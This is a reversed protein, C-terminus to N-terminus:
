EAELDNQRIANAFDELLLVFRPGPISAYGNTMLVARYPNWVNSVKNAQRSGRRPPIIDIVVNPHMARLSEQSIEPYKVADSECANIGGARKILDDYFTNRAAVYMRSLTEDHGVCVLVRPKQATSFNDVERRSASYRFATAELTQFLKQAQEQAGCAEGITLISQMVEDVREHAVGLFRIDLQKLQAEIEEQSDLGIVLDPQLAVIMEWNPDYTGGVSPKTAAEPPYTTFRSVGVVENSLGIAYCIETVNPAIAVIRLGDHVEREPREGCGAPLLAAAILM